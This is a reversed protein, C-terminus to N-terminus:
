VIKLSDEFGIEDNNTPRNKSNRENQKRNNPERVNAGICWLKMSMTSSERRFETSMELAHAM